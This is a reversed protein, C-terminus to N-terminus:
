TYKFLFHGMNFLLMALVSNQHKKKLFFTQLSRFLRKNALARLLLLPTASAGRLLKVVFLM